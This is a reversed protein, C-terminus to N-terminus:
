PIKSSDINRSMGLLNGINIRNTENYESQSLILFSFLVVFSSLDTSSVASAVEIVIEGSFILESCAV